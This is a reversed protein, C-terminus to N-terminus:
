DIETHEHTRNRFFHNRHSHWMIRIIGFNSSLRVVFFAAGAGHTGLPTAFPRRPSPLGSIAPEPSYYSKTSWFTQVCKLHSSRFQSRPFIRCERRIIADAAPRASEDDLHPRGVSQPQELVGTVIALTESVVAVDPNELVDGRSMLKEVESM